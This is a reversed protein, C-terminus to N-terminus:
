WPWQHLLELCQWFLVLSLSVACIQLSLIVVWPNNPLQFQTFVFWCQEQKVINGVQFCLVQSLWPWMKTLEVVRVSFYCWWSVCSIWETARCFRVNSCTHTKGNHNSINLAPRIWSPCNILQISRLRCRCKISKRMLLNLDSCWLDFPFFFIQSGWNIFLTLFVMWRCIRVYVFSIVSSKKHGLQTKYQWIWLVRSM